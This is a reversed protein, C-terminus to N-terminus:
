NFDIFNKLSLKILEENFFYNKAEGVIKIAEDENDSIVNISDTFPFSIINNKKIALPLSASIEGKENEIYIIKSSLNYFDSIYKIWELTNFINSNINNLLHKNYKNADIETIDKIKIEQM